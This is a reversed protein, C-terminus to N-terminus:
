VVFMKFHCHENRQFHSPNYIFINNIIQKYSKIMQSNHTGIKIDELNWNRLPIFSRVDLNYFILM